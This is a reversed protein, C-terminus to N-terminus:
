TDKHTVKQVQRSSKPPIPLGLRAHFDKQVKETLRPSIQRVIQTLLRDGTSQIVSLPLRRIFQPFHVTVGLRLQWEVQTVVAPSPIRQQRFVKSVDTAAFEANTEVLKLAAQYDVEYGTPPGEGDVTHMLYVGDQPPQLVVTIQPEVQYGLAGFQGLTLTYGNEGLPEVRMPQACRCFWGEHADLYDAVTPADSYMEMYGEFLSRFHIPEGPPSSVVSKEQVSNTIAEGAVPESAQNPNSPFNVVQSEIVRNM